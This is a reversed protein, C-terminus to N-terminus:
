TIIVFNQFFVNTKMTKERAKVKFLKRKKGRFSTALLNILKQRNEKNFLFFNHFRAIVFHKLLLKMM